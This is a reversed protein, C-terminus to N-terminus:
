EGRQPIGGMKPMDRVQVGSPLEFESDKVENVRSYQFKVIGEESETQRPLGDRKGVWVKHTAGDVTTSYVWCKVGDVTDSGTIAADQDVFDTPAMADPEDQTELPMRFAVNEGVKEDYMYMVMAELDTIVWGGEYVMKMKVPKGGSMKMISTVPRADTGAPPIMTMEYSSPPKVSALLKSVKDGIGGAPIDESPQDAAPEAVTGAPPTAIEGSTEAERKGCGSVCLALAAVLLVTLAITSHRTKM